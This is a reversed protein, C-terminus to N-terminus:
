FLADNLPVSNLDESHFYMELSYGSQVVFLKNTNNLYLISINAKCILAGNANMLLRNEIRDWIFFAPVILPAFSSQIQVSM